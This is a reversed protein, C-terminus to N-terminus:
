LGPPPMLSMDSQTTGGWSYAILRLPLGGGVEDDDRLASVHGM